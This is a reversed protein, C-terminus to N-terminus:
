ASQEARSLRNVIDHMVSSASTSCISDHAHTQLIPKWAHWIRDGDYRRGDIAWGYAEMPEVWKELIAQLKFNQQKVSMKTSASNILMDVGERVEGKITPLTVESLDSEIMRMYDDVNTQVVKITANSSFTSAAKNLAEMKIGTEADTMFHDCGNMALRHKSKGGARTLDLDLRKLVSAAQQPNLRPSKLSDITHCYWNGLFAFLVRSGDPGIWHGETSGTKAFRGSVFSHIGVGRLIQPMQGIFSFTDALYGVQSTGGMDSSLSMGLMLNRILAEGSSLFVDPQSYFPGLTIKGARNMDAVTQKMSPRVELYDEIMLYQGDMHFHHFNASSNTLMEFVRDLEMILSGRFQELSLYWERDWHTHSLVHIIREASLAAMDREHFRVQEPYPLVYDRPSVSFSTSSLSANTNSADHPNQNFGPETVEMVEDSVVEIRQPLNGHSPNVNHRLHIVKEVHRSSQFLGFVAFLVTIAGAVILTARQFSRRRRLGSQNVNVMAVPGAKEIGQVVIFTRLESIVPVQHGPLM